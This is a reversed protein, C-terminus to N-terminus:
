GHCAHARRATRGEVDVPRGSRYVLHRPNHLPHAPMATPRWRPAPLSPTRGLQRGARGRGIRCGEAAATQLKSALMISALSTVTRVPVLQVHFGVSIRPLGKANRIATAKSRPMRHCSAHRIGVSISRCPQRFGASNADLLSVSSIPNSFPSATRGLFPEFCPALVNDSKALRGDRWLIRIYPSSNVARM